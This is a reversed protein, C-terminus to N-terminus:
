KSAQYRATAQMQARRSEEAQIVLLWAELEQITTDGPEVKVGSTAKM